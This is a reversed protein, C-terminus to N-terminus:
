EAVTGQDRVAKWRRQCCLAEARSGERIAQAVPLDCSTPLAIWRNTQGGQAALTAPLNKFLAKNYRITTASPSGFFPIALRLVWSESRLSDLLHSGRPFRHMSASRKPNGNLSMKCSIKPQPISFCTSLSIITECRAVIQSTSPYLQELCRSTAPDHGPEM